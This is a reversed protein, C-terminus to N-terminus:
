PNFRTKSPRAIRWPTGGSKEITNVNLVSMTSKPYSPRRPRAPIVSIGYNQILIPLLETYSMPLSHYVKTRKEKNGRPYSSDTDRDQKRLFKQPSHLDISPVQTYLSSCPRNKVPKKRTTHSKRKSIREKLMAQVHEDSSSRRKEMMSAGTDMIKGGKIGNEIRGVSYMM